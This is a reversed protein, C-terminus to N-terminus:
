DWDYSHDKWNKPHWHQQRKWDYYMLIGLALFVLILLITFATPTLGQNVNESM